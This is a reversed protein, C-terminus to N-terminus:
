IFRSLIVCATLSPTAIAPPVGTINGAIATHSPIAIPCTPIFYERSAIILWNAMTTRSLDLGLRKWEAEQRYLPMHNVFKDTIVQSLVSPSTFSHPIVPAPTGAKLMVVKGRKRCNRCEYTKRYIDKVYLKAPEYVVEHRVFEEGVRHM